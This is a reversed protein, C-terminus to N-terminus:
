EELKFKLWSSYKQISFAEFQLTLIALCSLYSQCDLAFQANALFLPFVCFINHTHTNEPSLALLCRSRVSEWGCAGSQLGKEREDLSLSLPPVNSVRLPACCSSYVLFFPSDLAVISRRVSLLSSSSSPLFLSLSFSIRRVALPSHRMM